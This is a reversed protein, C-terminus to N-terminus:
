SVQKRGVIEVKQLTSVDSSDAALSSGAEPEPSEARLPVAAGLAVLFAGAFRPPAPFLM